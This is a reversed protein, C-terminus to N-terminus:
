KHVDKLGIAQFVSVLITLTGAGYFVVSANLVKEVQLAVVGSLFSTFYNIVAM